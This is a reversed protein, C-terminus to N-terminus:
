RGNDSGNGPNMGAQELLWKSATDLVMQSVPYDPHMISVLHGLKEKRGAPLYVLKHIVGKRALLRDFSLTMDKLWDDAGTTLFVPPLDKLEPLNWWLMSQYAAQSHYGKGFCILRQGWFALKKHYFEMFGCNVFIGRFALPSAAASFIRQLRPSTGVMAELVALVAGASGGSLFVRERDAPYDGLHAYIWAVAAAVAKVQDAVTKEGDAIPYNVNFVLFGRKVMHYGFARDQSKDGYLFGGGHFHILVPLPVRADAPWYVDMTHGLGVGYSIDAQEDVGEPLIQRRIVEGDSKAWNKLIPKLMQRLLREM